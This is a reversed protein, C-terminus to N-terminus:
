SFTSIPCEGNWSSSDGVLCFLAASLLSQISRNRFNQFIAETFPAFHM